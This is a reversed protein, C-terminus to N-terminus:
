LDIPDADIRVTLGSERWGQIMRPLSSRVKSLDGQILWRRGGEIDAPGLTVANELSKVQEAVELPVVDGRVELALMETSPPMGLRAREVLLDELYPIPKGRKLADFLPSGPM